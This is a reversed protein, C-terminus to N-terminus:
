CGYSMGILEPVACEYGPNDEDSQEVNQVNQVPARSVLNKEYKICHEIAPNNDSETQKITKPVMGKFQEKIEQMVSIQGRKHGLKKYSRLYPTEKKLPHPYESKNHADKGHIVPVLEYLFSSIDFKMWNLCTELHNSDADPRKSASFFMSRWISCPLCTAITPLDPLPLDVRSLISVPMSWGQWPVTMILEVSIWVNFSLLRASHLPFFTPM